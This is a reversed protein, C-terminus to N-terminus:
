KKSPIIYAVGWEFIYNTIVNTPLQSPELAKNVADQYIFGADFNWKDSLRYSFGVKYKFQNFFRERVEEGFNFFAEFYGFLVLNKYDSM